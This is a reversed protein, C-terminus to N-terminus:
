VNHIIIPNTKVGLNFKNLHLIMESYSLWITKNSLFYVYSTNIHNVTHQSPKFM